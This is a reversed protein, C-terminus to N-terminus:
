PVESRSQNHTRRTLGLWDFRIKPSLSIDMRQYDLYENKPDLHSKQLVQINDVNICQIARYFVPTSLYFWPYLYFFPFITITNATFIQVASLTNNAIYSLSSLSTYFLLFAKFPRINVLKSFYNQFM